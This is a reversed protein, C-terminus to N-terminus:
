RPDLVAAISMLLNIDGWYKDFKEIMKTAMSRMYKNRNEYKNMLVEKIRWVEPLYINAIPYEIGFVVNTVNNFVSLVQNVNEVM